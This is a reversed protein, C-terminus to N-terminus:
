SEAPSRRQCVGDCTGPWRGILWPRGSPHSVERTAHRRLADSLPGVSGCDALAVFWSSLLGLDALGAM